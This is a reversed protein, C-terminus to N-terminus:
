GGIVSCAGGAARCAREADARTAFPGAQLRTVGSGAVYSPTGGVRAGVKAWLAHANGADRFAGLQVRFRGVAPRAPATAAPTREPKESREAREPKEPREPREPREHRASATPPSSRNPLTEAQAVVPPTVPPPVDGPPLARALRANRAGDAIRAALATGQDRQEPQLYGDMQALTRGAQDLGQQSARTVFAYARVWDKGVGDGNFLMTGLVLECRREDRAASKELWPLAEGKRGAQFLALAYNDGAQAHGQVAAKRFWEIAQGMDTPVGRGLKYAQGLNFEADPDGAIAPGRWQAVAATWDGRKWADVGAKVDAGAPTAIAAALAWGVAGAGTVRM